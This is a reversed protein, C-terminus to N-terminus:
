CRGIEALGPAAVQLAVGRQPARSGAPVPPPSRSGPGESASAAAVRARRQAGARLRSSARAAEARSAARRMQPMEQGGRRLCEGAGRPSSPLACRPLSSPPRFPPPSAATLAGAPEAGARAARGRGCAAGRRGPGEGARGGTWRAALGAWGPRQSAPGPGLPSTEIQSGCCTGPFCLRPDRWGRACGGRPERSFLPFYEEIRGSDCFSWTAPVARPPLAPPGRGQRMQPRAPTRVAQLLRRRRARRGAARPGAPPGERGGGLAPGRMQRLWLGLRNM